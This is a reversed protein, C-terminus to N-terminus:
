EGPNKSGVVNDTAPTLGQDAYTVRLLLAAEPGIFEELLSLYCERWPAAHSSAPSQLHHALEHLVVTERAAWRRSPDPNSLPIALTGTAVEYHASADGKRARVRVPAVRRTRTVHDAYRQISPVDAFKREDPLTLTSGAVRVPMRSGTVAASAATVDFLDALITEARYVAARQFDRPRHTVTM